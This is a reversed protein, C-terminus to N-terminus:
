TSRPASEQGGYRVIEFLNPPFLYDENIETIIRYYGKEVSIVEYTKNKVMAVMDPGKYKVTIQGAM